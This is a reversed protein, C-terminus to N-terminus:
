GCFFECSQGGSRSSSTTTTPSAMPAPPTAQTRTSSSPPPQSTTTTTRTPTSRHQHRRTAHRTKARHPTSPAPTAIRRMGGPAAIAHTTVSAPTVLPAPHQHHPQDTLAALTATLGGGLGLLGMVVAAAKAAGAQGFLGAGTGGFGAVAKTASRRVLVHAGALYPLPALVAAAKGAFSTREADLAQCQVCHKLHRGVARREAGKLEGARYAVLRAREEEDVEIGSSHRVLTYFIKRAVFLRNRLAEYNTGLREALQHQDWGFHDVAILVVAEQDSLARLGAVLVGRSLMARADRGRELEAMDHVMSGLVAATLEREALPRDDGSEEVSAFDYAVFRARPSRRTHEGYEERLARGAADRLCRYLRRDREDEGLGQFDPWREYIGLLADQLTDDVSIRGGRGEVQRDLVRQLYGRFQDIHAAVFEEYSDALEDAVLRSSREAAPLPQPAPM